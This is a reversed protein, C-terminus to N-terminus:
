LGTRLTEDALEHYLAAPHELQTPETRIHSHADYLFAIGPLCWITFLILARTHDRISMSHFTDTFSTVTLTAVLSVSSLVIRGVTCTSDSPEKRGPVNM